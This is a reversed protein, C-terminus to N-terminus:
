ASAGSADPRQRRWAARYTNREHMMGVEESSQGADLPFRNRSRTGARGGPGRRRRGGPRNWTGPAARRVRAGAGARSRAGSIRVAM